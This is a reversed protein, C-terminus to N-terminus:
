IACILKQFLDQELCCIKDIKKITDNIFESKKNLNYQACYFHRILGRWEKGISIFQDGIKDIKKISFEKSFTKIGKGFEERYCTDSGPLLAERITNFKFMFIKNLIETEVSAESLNKNFEELVSIIRRMGNIGSSFEVLNENKLDTIHRGTLMIDCTKKISSSIWDKKEKNFRNIYDGDIIFSYCANEPSLPFCRSNRSTQFLQFDVELLETTESDKLDLLVTNKDEDYGVLAALTINSIKLTKESVKENEIKQLIYSSDMSFFLPTGNDVFRKIEQFAKLENSFDHQQYDIKMNDYAIDELKIAAAGAVWATLKRSENLYVQGFSFDLIGTLLCLSFSDAEIGYYNLVDRLSTIRCDILDRKPMCSFGDIIKRV